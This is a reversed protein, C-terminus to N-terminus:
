EHPNRKCQKLAKSLREVQSKFREILEPKFYGRDLQDAVYALSVESNILEHLLKNCCDEKYCLVCDTQPKVANGTM